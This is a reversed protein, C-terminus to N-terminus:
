REQWIRFRPAAIGYVPRTQYSLLKCIHLYQRQRLDHADTPVKAHSTDMPLVMYFSSAVDADYWASENMVGDVAM